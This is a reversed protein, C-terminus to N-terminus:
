ASLLIGELYELPIQSISYIPRTKFDQTWKGNDLRAIACSPDSADITDIQLIGGRNYLNNLCFLEHLQCNTERFEKMIAAMARMKERRINMAFQAYQQNIKLLNDQLFGAMDQGYTYRNATFTMMGNIFMTLDFDDPSLERIRSVPEMVPCLDILIMPKDSEYVEAMVVDKMITDFLNM